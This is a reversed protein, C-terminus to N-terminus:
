KKIYFEDNLTFDKDVYKELNHKYIYQFYKCLMHLIQEENCEKSLERNTYIIYLIHNLNPSKNHSGLTSNSNLEEALIQLNVTRKIINMVTNEANFTDCIKIICTLCNNKYKDNLYEM